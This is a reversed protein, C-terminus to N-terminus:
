KNTREPTQPVLQEPIGARITKGFSEFTCHDHFDVSGIRSSRVAEIREIHGLLIDQIYVRVGIGFVRDHDVVLHEELAVDEIM